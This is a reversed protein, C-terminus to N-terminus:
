TLWYTSEAIRRTNQITFEQRSTSYRPALSNIASLLRSTDADLGADLQNM